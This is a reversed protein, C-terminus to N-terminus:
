MEEASGRILDKEGTQGGANCLMMVSKLFFM